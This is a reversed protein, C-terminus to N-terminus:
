GKRWKHFSVFNVGGDIGCHDGPNEVPEAGVVAIHVLAGNGRKGGVALEAGNEHLFFGQGFLVGPDMLCEFEVSAVGDALVQQLGAKEVVASGAKALGSAVAVPAKSFVASAVKEVPGRKAASGLTGGEARSSEPRPSLIIQDPSFVFYDNRDPEIIGDFVAELAKVNLNHAGDEFKLVTDVTPSAEPFM